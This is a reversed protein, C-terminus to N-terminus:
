TKLTLSLLYHALPCTMFAKTQWNGRVSFLLCLSINWNPFTIISQCDLCYHLLSNKLYVIYKFNIKKNEWIVFVNLHKATLHLYYLFSTFNYKKVSILSHIFNKDRHYINLMFIKKEFIWILTINEIFFIVNYYLM